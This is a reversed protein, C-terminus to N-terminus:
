SRVPQAEYRQAQQRVLQVVADAWAPEANLSPV